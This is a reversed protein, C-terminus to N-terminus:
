LKAVNLVMDMSAKDGQNNYYIKECNEVSTGMMNAIYIVPVKRSLYNTIATHRFTYSHLPFDCGLVKGLKKLWINFNSIFKKIDGNNTKSNKMREENRIPFIYGDKATLSWRKIITEMIPNIPVTCPVIQKEAIKRRKFVFHRVGNVTIINSQQLSIADCPSQGTFLLFVCFDRYLIKHVAKPLEQAKMTIIRNCQDTTLTCNKQSSVSSKKAWKVHRVSQMDFWDRQEAKVLMAHLTKSIYVFGKGENKIKIWDFLANIFTSTVDKVKLNTYDSHLYLCFAELKRETKEYVEYTGKLTGDPHKNDRKLESVITQVLEHVTPESSIQVSEVCQEGNVALMFSMLDGNWDFAKDDYKKRFDALTKNNEESFPASKIFAQKKANWHKKLIKGRLLKNVCLYRVMGDQYLRLRLNFGKGYTQYNVSVM